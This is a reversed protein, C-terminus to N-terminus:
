GKRQPRRRPAKGWRLVMASVFDGGNSFTGLAIQDGPKIKGKELADALTVPISGAFLNGYYALTDHSREPKVGIRARWEDIFMQNPQHTILLNVDAPKLQAQALCRKVAKPILAVANDRIQEVMEPSFNVTIPGCGREWYNKFQGDVLDPEFRFIGYHEGHSREYSAVFSSPGPELLTASAGDGLVWSRKSKQFEPLRSIFNTATVVVVKKYKGSEIFSRAVNLMSLYSSCSTDLNMMTANRAGVRNQIAPGIGPWFTDMFICSCIILDVKSAATGTRKLLKQVALTGLDESLYDPSAFRRERVGRFFANSEALADGGAAGAAAALQENVVVREPMFNVVDVIRAGAM